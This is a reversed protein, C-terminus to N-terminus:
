GAAQRRYETRSELSKLVDPYFGEPILSRAQLFQLFHLMTEEMSFQDEEMPNAHEVFWEKIFSVILGPTWEELPPPAFDELFVEFDERMREEKEDPLNALEADLEAMLEPSLVRGPDPLNIVENVADVKLMEPDKSALAIWEANREEFEKMKGALDVLKMPEDEAKARTKLYFAFLLPNSLHPIETSNELQHRSAMALLSKPSQPVASDEVEMLRRDLELLFEQTLLRSLIQPEPINESDLEKLLEEDMHLDELTPDFILNPLTRLLNQLQRPSNITSPIRQTMQKKRRLMKKHRKEHQRKKMGTKKVKAKKRM